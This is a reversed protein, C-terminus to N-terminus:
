YPMLRNVSSHGGRRERRRYLKTRPKKMSMRSILLVSVLAPVLGIALAFINEGGVFLRSVAVAVAAALVTVRFFVNQFYYAFFIALTFAIAAHSSIINPRLFDKETNGKEFFLHVPQGSVLNKTAQVMILTLILSIILRLSLDKLDLFFLLFFAIGFGFIADGMFSINVWFVKETFITSTSIVFSSCLTVIVAIALASLAEKKSVLEKMLIRQQM